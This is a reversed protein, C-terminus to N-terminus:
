GPEVDGDTKKYRRQHRFRGGRFDKRGGASHGPARQEMFETWIGAEYADIWEEPLSEFIIERTTKGKWFPIIEEEYVKKTDEGVKYPMNERTDLVKLDELATLAYKPM